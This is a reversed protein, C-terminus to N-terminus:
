GDEWVRGLASKTSPIITYQDLEEKKVWKFAGHEFNSVKVSESNIRCRVFVAVVYWEEGNKKPTWYSLDLPELVEVEAGVEEKLERKLGEVPDEGFELRGGPVDWKGVHSRSPDNASEQVILLENRENLIVAKMSVFTKREM